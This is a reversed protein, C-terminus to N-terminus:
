LLDKSKEYVWFGVSNVLLARIACIRYGKWLNGQKFANIASINQAMQRSRISDFPYSLTWNVLGSLAGCMPINFDEDRLFHYVGFYSSFGIMERAFSSLIGRTKYIDKITMQKGIQRKIKGIDAIYMFPAVSFGACMGSYIHNKFIKQTRNHVGFVIANLFGFSILPYTVGRYYHKLSFKTNINNNQLNVKLTDFPHGIIMQSFGSLSGAIFDSM